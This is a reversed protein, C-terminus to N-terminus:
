LLAGVAAATEKILFLTYADQGNFELVVYNCVLM